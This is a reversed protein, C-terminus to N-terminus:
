CADQGRRRQGLVPLRRPQRNNHEGKCVKASVRIVLGKDVPHRFTEGGIERTDAAGEDDGPVGGEDVPALRDLELLDAAFEADV